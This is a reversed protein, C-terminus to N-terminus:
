GPSANGTASMSHGLPAPRTVGHAWTSWAPPATGPTVSVVYQYTQSNRTSSEVLDWLFPGPEFAGAHAADNYWYTVGFCHTMTHGDSHQSCLTYLYVPSTAEPPQYSLVRSLADVEFVHNRHAADQIALTYHNNPNPAPLLDDAPFAGK